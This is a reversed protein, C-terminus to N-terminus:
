PKQSNWVKTIKESPVVYGFVEEFRDQIPAVRSEQKKPGGVLDNAIFVHYHYVDSAVVGTTDVCIADFGGVLILTTIGQEQAWQHLGTGSLANYDKKVVVTDEPHPQIMLEFGPTEPTSLPPTDTLEMKLKKNAPMFSPDEIMQTWVIKVGKDRAQDIFEKIKPIKKKADEVDTQLLQALVEKSDFYAPHIDIALVASQRPNLIEQLEPPLDQTEVPRETTETNVPM